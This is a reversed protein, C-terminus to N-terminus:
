ARDAPRLHALADAGHRCWRRHLGNRQRHGQRLVRRVARFDTVKDGPKLSFIYSSMKGPPINQAHAAAATHRHAREAHHHRKGAPYNAMSYARVRPEHGRRSSTGSTTVPGLRRPVGRRHRFRQYNCTTRRANSRSTAAPGSTSTRARPCSWSWNRSSPPSTTTPACRASGVEQGRIGRRAGRDEHGAQGGGPLGPPRGPRGRSPHHPVNRHAPHRRRRRAGQGPVARLHRRRRLGLGRCIETRGARQLLKGGAPVKITKEDNICSRWTAPPWWGLAAVLIIGVLLMVM